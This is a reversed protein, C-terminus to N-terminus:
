IDNRLTAWVSHKRYILVPISSIIVTIIFVVGTLVPLTRMVFVRDFIDKILDVNGIHGYQIYLFLIMVVISLMYSLSMYILNETFIVKYIERESFGCAIYIGYGDTRLLIRSVASIFFVLLTTISILILYVLLEDIIYSNESNYKKVVDSFSALTIGINCEDAKKEFVERLQSVNKKSRIYILSGSIDSNNKIMFIKYDTNVFFSITEELDFIQLTDAPWLCGKKAFGVVIFRISDGYIVDGCSYSDRFGYGLIVPITNEDSPYEYIIEDCLEFIDAADRSIWTIETKGEFSYMYEEQHDAQIKLLEPIDYGFCISDGAYEIDKLGRILHSFDNISKRDNSEVIRIIGTKETKDKLSEYLATTNYKGMSYSFFTIGFLVLTMSFMMTYLFFARLNSSLSYVTLKFLGKLKM